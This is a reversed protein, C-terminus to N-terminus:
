RRVGEDEEIHTACHDPQRCVVRFFADVAWRLPATVAQWRPGYDGRRAKGLRSSITEDPDGFAIASGLQDLAVLLNLLYRKM